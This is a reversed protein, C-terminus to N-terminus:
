VEARMLRSIRARATADRLDAMADNLKASADNERRAYYHRMDRSENLRATHRAIRRHALWIRFANIM